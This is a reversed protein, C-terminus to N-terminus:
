KEVESHKANGRLLNTWCPRGFNKPNNCIKFTGVLTPITPWNTQVPDSEDLQPPFNLIKLGFIAMKPCIQFPQIQGVLLSWFWWWQGFPMEPWSILQAPAFKESKCIKALLTFKLWQFPNGGQLPRAGVLFIQGWASESDELWPCLYISYNATGFKKNEFLNSLGTKM